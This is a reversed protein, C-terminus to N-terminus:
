CLFVVVAGCFAASIAVWMTLTYLSIEDQSTETLFAFRGLPSSSSFQFLVLGAPFCLGSQCLLHQHETGERLRIKDRVKWLCPLHPTEQLCETGFM